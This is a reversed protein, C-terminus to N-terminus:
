RSLRKSDNKKFMLYLNLGFVSAINFIFYFKLLNDVSNAPLGRDLMLKFFIVHALIGSLTFLTPMLKLSYDQNLISLHFKDLLMSETLVLFTGLSAFSAFGVAYITSATQNNSLLLEGETAGGVIFAAAYMVNIRFDQTRYFM